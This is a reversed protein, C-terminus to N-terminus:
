NVPLNFGVSEGCECKVFVDTHYESHSDRQTSVEINNGCKCEETYTQSCEGGFDYIDIKKDSM